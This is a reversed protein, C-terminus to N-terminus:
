RYDALTNLYPILSEELSSSSTQVPFGITGRTEIVGFIKCIRTVFDACKKLPYVSSKPTEKMYVNCQSIIDLLARMVLPTNFSDCLAEHIDSQRDLLFEVLDKEKKRFDHDNNQSIDLLSVERIITQVNSFFNFLTQEVNIAEKMSSEKYDLVDSWSHLLFLLRIQRSSYKALAERITIFNKLSKSMKQGEIHLHGAHLFYNVWQKNNFFGESQALENDHHPFCLDIGGSHIDLCSGLVDGAMASCEVHWGPRGQSWPSNWAPEGPKSKKWLAFDAPSKKSSTHSSLSGEGEEMLKVNGKASPKLKCYSHNPDKDFAQTDFYVSGDAEYAFGHDIVKQVFDVIEPVYESVRTLVDSPLVNLLEMDKMFEKEWHVSLDRFIKIDTVSAGMKDDLWYTLIDKAAEAIEVPTQSKSTLGALISKKHMLVKPDESIIASIKEILENQKLDKLNLYKEAVFKAAEMIDSKLEELTVNKKLYEDFLYKQRARIIIKDDIDTINMVYYIDYGFYDELIRRIIDFTIYTRAHGMHAADYVTPGCSYWKILKGQQPVFPVKENKFSNKVQLGSPEKENKPAFWIPKEQTM